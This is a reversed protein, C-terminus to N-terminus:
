PLKGCDHQISGFNACEDCCRNVNPDHEEVPSLDFINDDTVAHAQRDDSRLDVTKALRKLKQSRFRKRASGPTVRRRKNPTSAQNDTGRAGKRATRRKSSDKLEDESEPRAEILFKPNDESQNRSDRKPGENSTIELQIPDGPTLPEIRPPEPAVFDVTQGSLQKRHATSQM